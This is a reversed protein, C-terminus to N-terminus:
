REGRLKRMREADLEDGMESQIFDSQTTSIQGADGWFEWRPPPETTQNKFNTENKKKEPKTRIKLNLSGLRLILNLM